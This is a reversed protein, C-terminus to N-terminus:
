KAKHFRSVKHLIHPWALAMRTLFRECLGLDNRARLAVKSDRTFQYVWAITATAAVVDGILPNVIDLLNESTQLLRFVWGAHYLALDLKQQLFLCSQPNGVQSRLVVHHLFPHNLIAQTAHWVIQTTIWPNWYERHQSIEEATRKPFAVNILLHQGCLQAEFEILEISLKTHTSDSLWPKEVHGQRLRHLYSRTRGWTSIMRLCYENVGIDKSRTEEAAPTASSQLDSPGGAVTVSSPSPPLPASDPYPAEASSPELASSFFLRELLFVSWYTRSISTDPSAGGCLMTQLNYLRSAAGIAM